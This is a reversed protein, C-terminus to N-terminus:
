EAQSWFRSNDSTLVEDILLLRGQDDRGFEFKAHATIIGRAAAIEHGREYTARSMLELKLDHSPGNRKHDFKRIAAAV